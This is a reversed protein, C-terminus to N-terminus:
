ERPNRNYSDRLAKVRDHGERVNNYQREVIGIVGADQVDKLASEYENKISDEGREAEALVSYIGGGTVKSKIDLWWRHMTGTVSGSQAPNQYVFCSM